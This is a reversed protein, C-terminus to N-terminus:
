FFLIAQYGDSETPETPGVPGLVAYGIAKSIILSSPKQNVAQVVNKGVNIGYDISSTIAHVISKDTIIGQLTQFARSNVVINGALQGSVVSSSSGSSSFIVTSSVSGVNSTTAQVTGSTGITVEALIEGFRLDVPITGGGPLNSTASVAGQITILATDIFGTTTQGASGNAFLIPIAAAISGQVANNFPDGSHGTTATTSIVVQASIAATEPITAFSNSSCIVPSIAIGFSSTPYGLATSGFIVNASVTGFHPVGCLGNSSIVVPMSGSLSNIGAYGLSNSSFTILPLQGVAPIYIGGTVPVISVGSSSITIEKSLTGVNCHDAHATMTIVISDSITSVTTFTGAASSSILLSPAAFALVIDSTAACGIVVTTDSTGTVPQASISDSSVVVPASIATTIPQASFSSSGIIVEGAVFAVYNGPVPATGLTLTTSVVINNSASATIPLAAFSQSTVLLNAFITNAM